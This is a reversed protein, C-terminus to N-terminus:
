ALVRIKLQLETKEFYQVDNVFNKRDVYRLSNEMKIENEKSTVKEYSRKRIIKVFFTQIIENWKSTFQIM